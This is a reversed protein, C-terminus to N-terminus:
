AAEGYLPRAVVRPSARNFVNPQRIL